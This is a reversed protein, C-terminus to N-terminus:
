TAKLGIDVSVNVKHITPHTHEVYGPRRNKNSAIDEHEQDHRAIIREESEPVTKFWTPDWGHYEVLEKEIDRSM